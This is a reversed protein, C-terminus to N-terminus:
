GPRDRVVRQRLADPRAGPPPAVFVDDFEADYDAPFRIETTSRAGAHPGRLGLMFRWAPSRGSARAGSAARGCSGRRARARRRGLRRRRRARGRRRGDRRRDRPAGTACSRRSASAPACRRRGREALRRALAAVLAYLGGRVHWAGFAHEVYGPSPSRPRRAARTPARTPRSASSSWGCGRTAARPAPSTACRGGRGSASRPRASGAGSRRARPRRPPWPPPGSSSASRRAGCRARLRRPLAGLRRGRRAVVGRAGRARPPLDATLELATGDAFRYRTVPEVRVCSSGADVRARGDPRLPGRVVWPMTLLSPGADLRFGGALEVRGCKGGPADGQELVVVDHGADALRVGRRLGGVGAGVVAVRMGGRLRARLAPVAFAGMALAAPAAVRPRRWLARQRGGRRGVDLRLARARRRRATAADEDGDLAAWVAFVALGTLWGAPSTRRRSARTAGAAAGLDLLGRAGHAPRPLRGLRDPAGAALPVRPGPRRALLRGAVWAPRAM